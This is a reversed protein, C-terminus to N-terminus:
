SRVRERTEASDILQPSTLSPPTESSVRVLAPMKQLRRLSSLMLAKMQQIGDVAARGVHHDKVNKWVWEDPNLEPSYAPLFFLKLMGNSDNAFKQPAQGPPVRSNDLILYVPHGDSDSMLRKCFAKFDPAKISEEFLQFRLAGQRNVASVMFASRRAGTHEVVPTQGVPAWTTGAHYHTGIAAEDAFYIIADAEKAEEVIKPYEEAKWRCGIPSKAPLGQVATEAAVDRAQPARARRKRHEAQSWLAALDTEPHDQPDM